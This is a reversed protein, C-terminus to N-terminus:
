CFFYPNGNWTPMLPPVTCLTTLVPLQFEGHSVSSLCIVIFLADSALFLIHATAWFGLHQQSLCFHNRPIHAKWARLLCSIPVEQTVPCATPSAPCVGCSLAEEGRQDAPLGPAKHFARHKTIKWFHNELNSLINHFTSVFSRSLPHFSVNCNLWTWNVLHVSTSNVNSGQPPLDQKIRRM